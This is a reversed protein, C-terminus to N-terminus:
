CLSEKAIIFKNLNFNNLALNRLSLIRPRRQLWFCRANSIDLIPSEPVQFNSANRQLDIYNSPGRMDCSNRYVCFIQRYSGLARSVLSNTVTKIGFCNVEIRLPFMSFLKRSLQRSTTDSFSFLSNILAKIICIQTM